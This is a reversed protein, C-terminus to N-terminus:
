LGHGAGRHRCRQRRFGHQPDLARIRPNADLRRVDARSALLVVTDLDARAWIMNAIWFSRYPIARDELWEILPAQTRAAVERLLRYVAHGRESKSPARDLAAPEAQEELFILFEAQGTAQARALVHPDVKNTWASPETAQAGALAAISAILLGAVRRRMQNM